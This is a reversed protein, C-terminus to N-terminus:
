SFRRELPLTLTFLISRIGVSKLYTDCVNACNKIDEAADICLGQMRGEITQGDPAIKTVDTV